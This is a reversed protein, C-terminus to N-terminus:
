KLESAPQTHHFLAWFDEVTSVTSVPKQCSEYDISGDSVLFFSVKSGYLSYSM